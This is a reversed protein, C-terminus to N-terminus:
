FQQAIGRLFTAPGAISGRLTALRETTTRRREAAALCAMGLLIQWVASPVILAEWVRSAPGVGPHYGLYKVTELRLYLVGLVAAACGVYLWRARGAETRARVTAYVLPLALISLDYLRHYLFLAAYFAVLCVAAPECRSNRLRWGVWGGLGLLVAYQLVRVLARDNVGLYYIARDLGIMDANVPHSFNNMHGPSSLRGINELCEGLRTPLEGAPNGVFYMGLGVVALSVWSLRDGRRRFLLLFPLMTAPKIAALALGVGAALPWGRYKAGLAGCLSLTVFLSMQGEFLSYRTSVSLAMAATLVGVAPASLREARPGEASTLVRQAIVILQAYGVINLVAWVWTMRPLPLQAFLQYVAFAHPPNVCTIRRYPDLGDRVDRGNQWFFALDGGTPPDVVFTNLVLALLSGATVSWAWWSKIRRGWLLAAATLLVLAQMPYLFGFKLLGAFDGTLALM